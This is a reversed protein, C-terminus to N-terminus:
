VAEAKIAARVRGKRERKKELRRLKEPESRAEKVLRHVLTPSIRFEKAIDQQLVHEENYLRLIEKRVEPPLEKLTRKKYKRTLGREAKRM